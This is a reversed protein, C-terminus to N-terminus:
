ASVLQVIRPLLLRMRESMFRARANGNVGKLPDAPPRHFAKPDSKREAELRALLREAENAWDREQQMPEDKLYIGDLLRPPNTANAIRDLMPNGTSM